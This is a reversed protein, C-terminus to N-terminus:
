LLAVYIGVFVCFYGYPVYTCTHTRPKLLVEEYRKINKPSLNTQCSATITENVLSHPHVLQLLLLLSCSLCSLARKM